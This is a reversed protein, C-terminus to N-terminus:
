ILGQGLGFLVQSICVVYIEEPLFPFLQHTPGVLLLSVGM